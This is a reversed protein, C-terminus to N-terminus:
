VSLYTYIVPFTDSEYSSMISTDIGGRLAKEVDEELRCFDNPNDEYFDECIAEPLGDPNYATYRVLALFGEVESVQYYTINTLEMPRKPRGGTQSSGAQTTM